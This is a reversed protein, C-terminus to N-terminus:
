NLFGHMGIEKKGVRGGGGKKKQLGNLMMNGRQIKYDGHNDGNSRWLIKVCMSIMQGPPHQMVVAMVIRASM